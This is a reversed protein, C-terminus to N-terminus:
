LEIAEQLNRELFLQKWSCGHPAAQCNKWRAAARRAWYEEDAVLTAAVGLPLALPLQATVARVLAGDAPLSGLAAPLVEGAGVAAAVAQLCLSQLAPVCAPAHM